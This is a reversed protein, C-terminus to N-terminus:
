LYPNKGNQALNRHNTQQHLLRDGNPAARVEFTILPCVINYRLAM